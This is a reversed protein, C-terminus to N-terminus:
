STAPATAPQPSAAPKKSKQPGPVVRLIKPDLVRLEDRYNIADYGHTRLANLITGTDREHIPLGLTALLVEDPLVIGSVQPNGGAMLQNYYTKAEAPMSSGPPSYEGSLVAELVERGSLEGGSFAESEMLEKASVTAKTLDLVKKPHVDVTLPVLPTLGQTLPRDQPPNGYAEMVEPDRTLSIGPVDIERKSGIGKDYNSLNLGHKRISEVFEPKTFHVWRGGFGTSGRRRPLVEQWYRDERKKNITALLWEGEIWPQGIIRCAQNYSALANGFTTGMMEPKVENTMVAQEFEPWRSKRANQIYDGVTKADPYRFSWIWPQEKVPGLIKEELEPWAGKIVDAAYKVCLEYAPIAQIDRWDVRDDGGRLLEIELEPWRTKLVKAAYNIAAYNVARENSYGVVAALEEELKPIRHHSVETAYETLAWLISATEMVEDTFEAVEAEFEPWPGKIVRKAYDVALPVLINIVTPRATVPIHRASSWSGSLLYQEWVPIRQGVLKAIYTNVLTAKVGPEAIKGSFMQEEEEPKLRKGAALAYTVKDRMSELTEPDITGADYNEYWKAVDPAIPTLLKLFELAVPDAVIHMPWREGKTTHVVEGFANTVTVPEIGPKRVFVRSTLPDDTRDMFQDSAPHLQAYASGKYFMVYSPGMALYDRGYHDQATCWNTGGSLSCLAKVPTPDAWQTPVQPIKYVKFDGQNIILEAGEQVDMREKEKESFTDKASEELTQFLTAPTYSQIDKNGTFKPSRKLKMFTTLQQKIKAQDEPLKITKNAIGKAIWAVYDTQNPSPDTAIVQEIQEPTLKYQRKMLEIKQETPRATKLFEKWSVGYPVGSATKLTGLAQEIKDKSNQFLAILGHHYDGPNKSMDDVVDDYPVWAIHDTEWGHKGPAFPFEQPVVGIFNHYTFGRDTFVYAPILNIGGHYGVEEGIEAKASEAPTKGEQVAGGITGWCNGVNVDASRWALCVSRSSPCVPLIGSAANGEGAWYQDGGGVDIYRDNAKKSLVATKVQKGHDFYEIKKINKRPIDSQIRRYLDDTWEFENHEPDPESKEYPWVFEVVACREPDETEGDEWAMEAATMGYEQAAWMETTCWVYEKKNDISRTIARLGERDIKDAREWTTGHYMITRNSATKGQKALNYFKRLDEDSNTHQGLTKHIRRDLAKAQAIPLVKVVKAATPNEVWFENGYGRQVQWYANRPVASMDILAAYPRTKAYYDAWNALHSTIMLKGAEMEGDAMSSMDRPGKAPDITFNPDSTVHWYTGHKIESSFDHKFEEFTDCKRAEAALGRLSPPIGSAGTHLERGISYGRKNDPAFVGAMFENSPVVYSGIGMEDLIITQGLQGSDKIFQRIAKLKRDDLPARFEYNGGEQRIWGKDFVLNMLEVELDEEDEINLVAKPVKFPLKDINAVLWQGHGQYGGISTFTGNPLLWGRKNSTYATRMSRRQLEQRHYKNATYPSIEPEVIGKLTIQSPKFVIYDDAVVEHHLEIVNKVIAGDYGNEYAFQVISDTDVKDGNFWERMAKPKSISFYGSEKADVIFPKNMTLYAEHVISGYAQAVLPDSSFFKGIHYQDNIIEETWERAGHYVPGYQKAVKHAAHQRISRAAAQKGTLASRLQNPSFLAYNPAGFEHLEIGDYGLRRIAALAEPTELAQWDGRRLWKEAKDDTWDSQSLEELQQAVKGIDVADLLAEIDESVRFLKEAKAYLPMIRGGPQQPTIGAPNIIESGAFENATGINPTVFILGKENSQLAAFERTTGHYVKLPTGSKDVIQSKGFWAKFEPTNVVSTAALKQPMTEIPLPEVPEWGQQVVANSHVPKRGKSRDLSLTVHYTSGDPRETSGNVSVIAAELSDDATYGVVKLDAPEPAASDQPVGFKLTVHHAIVDPFKPPFKELLKARSADTLVYATYAATKAAHPMLKSTNWVGVSRVGNGGYGSLESFVAGDYGLQKAYYEIEPAFNYLPLNSDFPNTDIKRSTEAQEVIEAVIKAGEPTRADLIRANPGLEFESVNGYRAAYDPDEAFYVTKGPKLVVEGTENGHYLTAAKSSLIEVNKLDFIAVQSVDGGLRFVVGDHGATRIEDQLQRGSEKTIGNPHAETLTRGDPLVGDDIYYPDDLTVRAALTRPQDGEGYHPSKAFSEAQEPSPSFYVAKGVLGPDTAGAKDLDFTEFESKTGHYVVGSWGDGAQKVPFGLGLQGVRLRYLPLDFQGLKPDDWRVTVRSHQPDRRDRAFEVVTGGKKPNADFWVRTGVLLGPIAATKSRFKIQKNILGVLEPATLRKDLWEYIDGVGAEAWEVRQFRENWSRNAVLHVKGGKVYFMVLYGENIGETVEPSFTDVHHFEVGAAQEYTHTEEIRGDQINAAGVYFPDGYWTAENKPSVKHASNKAAGPITNRYKNTHWVKDGVRFKNKVAAATRVWFNGKLGSVDLPQKKFGFSKALNDYFIKIKNAEVSPDRQAITEATHIAVNKIGHQRAIELLSAIGYEAWDKFLGVLKAKIDDLKEVTYGQALFYSRGMAFREPTVKEQAKEGLNALFEEYTESTILAKAQTVSNVLDSQVEDVLLWDKDIFDVRLWGVTNMEAPHGSMQSSQSVADVYWKVAPDEELIREADASKNIQVVLQEVDRYSHEPEHYKKYSIGYGGKSKQLFEMYEKLDQQTVQPKNKRAQTFLQNYKQALQQFRPDKQFDRWPMSEIANDVFQQYVWRVADYEKTVPAELEKMDEPVDATKKAAEKDFVSRIQSSSFVIYATAGIGGDLSSSEKQIIGDYGQAQLARKAIEPFLRVWRWFPYVPIEGGRQERFTVLESSTRGILDSFEEGSIWDAVNRADFPKNMRIYAPYIVSGETYQAHFGVGAAFYDAYSEDDTFYTMDRQDFWKFVNSTGHFVPGIEGPRKSALVKKSKPPAPTTSTPVLITDIVEINEPPIPEYGIWADFDDMEPHQDRGLVYGKPIRVKWVDTAQNVWQAFFYGYDKAQEVTQFMFIGPRRQINKYEKIQPVLGDRKISGRNTRRSLHYMVDPQAAGLKRFESPHWYIKYPLHQGLIGREPEEIRLVTVEAVPRYDFTFTVPEGVLCTPRDSFEWYRENGDDPQNIFRNRADKPVEIRFPKFVPKPKEAATKAKDVNWLFVSSPNGYDDNEWVLIGDYGLKKAADPIPLEDNDMYTIHPEGAQAEALLAEARQRDESTLREDNLLEALISSATAPDNTDAINASSLDYAKAEGLEVAQEDYYTSGGPLSFYAGKPDVEGRRIATAGTKTDPYIGETDLPKVNKVPVGQQEMNKLMKRSNRSRIWGTAYDNRAWLYYTMKGNVLGADAIIFPDVSGYHKSAISLLDRWAPHKRGNDAGRIDCVLDIDGPVHKGSVVSGFVKIKDAYPLAKLQELIENKEKNFAVQDPMLLGSTKPQLLESTATVVRKVPQFNSGEGVERIGTLQVNTGSRLRVEMEAPITMSARFTGLWDVAFATITGRVVFINGEHFMGRVTEIATDEDLSWSIGFENPHIDKSSKVALARYATLPFTKSSWFELVRGYEAAWEEAGAADEELNFENNKDTAKDLVQELTPFKM